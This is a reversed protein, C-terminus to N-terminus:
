AATPAWGAGTGVLAGATGSGAETGTRLASVTRTEGNGASDVDSDNTLV